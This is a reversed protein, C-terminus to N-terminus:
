QTVSLKPPLQCAVFQQPLALINDTKREPGETARALRLATDELFSMNMHLPFVLSHEDLGIPINLIYLVLRGNSRRARDIWDDANPVAARLAAHNAPTLASSIVMDDLELKGWVVSVTTTIVPRPDAGAAAQQQSASLREIASQCHLVVSNDVYFRHVMLRFFCLQRKSFTARIRTFEAQTAACTIRHHGERWDSKQCARSCYIRVRCSSCRRFITRNDIRGCPPNDCAALRLFPPKHKLASLMQEQYAASRKFNDWVENLRADPTNDLPSAVIVKISQTILPLISPFCVGAPLQTKIFETLCLLLHEDPLFQASHFIQPIVNAKLAKRLAHPSTSVTILILDLSYRLTSRWFEHGPHDSRSVDPLPDLTGKLLNLVEKFARHSALCEALVMLGTPSASRLVESVLLALKLPRSCYIFHMTSRSQLSGVLALHTQILGVLTSVGNRCVDLIEDLQRHNLMLPFMFVFDNFLKIDVGEWQGRQGIVFEWTPIFLRFYGPTQQMKHSPGEADTPIGGVDDNCKAQWKHELDATFHGLSALLVTKSPLIDVLEETLQLSDHFVYLFDVWAVVFGCLEFVGDPLEGTRVFLHGLIWLLHRIQTKTVRSLTELEAAPPIRSPDLIAFFVAFLRGRLTGDAGSWIGEFRRYDFDSCGPKCAALAIERHSASLKRLERMHAVARPHM